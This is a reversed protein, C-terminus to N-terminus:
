DAATTRSWLLKSHNREAFYWRGGVRVFRDRYCLGWEVDSRTGDANQVTAHSVGYTEGTATDGSISVIQSSVLHQGSVYLEKLKAPILTRIAERGALPGAPSIIVGDETFCDAIADGDHRDVAHAYRWALKLLEWEQRALDQQATM